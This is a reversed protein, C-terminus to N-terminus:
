NHDPFAAKSIGGFGCGRETESGLPGLQVNYATTIFECTAYRHRTCIERLRYGLWIDHYHPLRAMYCAYTFPFHM